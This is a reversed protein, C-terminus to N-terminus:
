KRRRKRKSPQTAATGASAAGAPLVSSAPREGLGDPSVTAKEVLVPARVTAARAEPRNRAPSAAAPILSALGLNVNKWGVMFGQQVFTFVNSAVWYLVLGSPVQLAFFVYMVPMFQMISQMQQQQPDTSPTVMVKQALFGTIGSLAALLYLPDPDALSPLWLFPTTFLGQAALNFLASYLGIWVPMQIFVPLCGAAPNVGRDKYLQMQAQMLKERDKGFQKKLAELEPQVAQMAKASQVQKLTLPYTILKVIVTFAIITLGWSPLSMAALGNFLLMLAATMPHVIVADWMQVLGDFM